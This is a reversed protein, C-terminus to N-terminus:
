PPWCSTIYAVSYYCSLKLNHRCTYIKKREESKIKKRKLQLKMKQKIESSIHLLQDVIEV